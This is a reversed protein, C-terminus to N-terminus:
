VDGPGEAPQDTETDEESTRLEPISSPDLLRASRAIAEALNNAAETATEVSPHTEPHWGQFNNLLSFRGGQFGDRDYLREEAYGEVRARARSIADDYAVGRPSYNLLGQRSAFGLALALGTMTYPKAGLMVQRGSKDLVPNGDSDLYPVGDCDRFYKDIAAQLQEPSSYKPPKGYHRTAM